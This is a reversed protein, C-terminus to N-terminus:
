LACSRLRSPERKVPMQASGFVGEGDLDGLSSAIRTRRNPTSAPTTARIVPALTADDLAAAAQPGHIFVCCAGARRVDSSRPAIDSLSLIWITVPSPSNLGVVAFGSAAPFMAAFGASHM